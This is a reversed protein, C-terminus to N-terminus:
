LQWVEEKWDMEELIRQKHQLIVDAVVEKSERARAKGVCETEKAVVEDAEDRVAEEKSDIRSITSRVLAKVTDRVWQQREEKQKEKM